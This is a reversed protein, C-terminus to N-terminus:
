NFYFALALLYSAVAIGTTQYTLQIWSDRERILLDRERKIEDRELKLINIERDMAMTLNNLSDVTRNRSEIVSVLISSNVM